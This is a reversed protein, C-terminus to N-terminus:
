FESKEMQQWQGRYQRIGCAVRHDLWHYLFVVPGRRYGGFRTLRALSFFDCVTAFFFSMGREEVSVSVFLLRKERCKEM